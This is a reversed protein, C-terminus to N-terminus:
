SIRLLKEYIFILNMVFASKPGTFLGKLTEGRLKKIKGLQVQFKMLTGYTDGWVAGIKRWIDGLIPPPAGGACGGAGFGVKFTM